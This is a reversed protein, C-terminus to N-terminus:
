KMRKRRAQKLWNKKFTGVGGFFKDYTGGDEKADYKVAALEITCLFDAVQSLRYETMTTRRRVVAQKALVDYVANYLASKVIAQANDYYVKVTDFSQFFELHDFLYNVIDRKVRNLLAENNSYEAKRYAFTRYLFPLHDTFARFLSLLRKRKRSDMNAYDDHANILPSLHFVQDPLSEQRLSQEYTRIRKTLSDRQDHFVLTILYYKSVTGMDGSEDVLISLESM